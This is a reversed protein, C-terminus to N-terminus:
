GTSPACASAIADLVNGIQDDDLIDAAAFRLVRIGRDTLWRDRREDHRAIEPNDHAAGDVEVCLSAETCFFDLVYPGVPHQRRFRLGALAEHRLHTWLIVEPLTMARRLRRATAVTKSAARM